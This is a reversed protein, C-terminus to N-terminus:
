SVPADESDVRGRWRRFRGPLDDRGAAALRAVHDDIFQV